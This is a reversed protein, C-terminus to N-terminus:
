LIILLPITMLSKFYTHRTIDRPDQLFSDEKHEGNHKGHQLAGLHEWMELSRSIGSGPTKGPTKLFSSVLM